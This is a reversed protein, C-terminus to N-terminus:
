QLLVLRLYFLGLSSCWYIYRFSTFLVYNAHLSERETKAQRCILSEIQKRNPVCGVAKKFGCEWFLYSCSNESSSKRFIRIQSSKYAALEIDLELRGCMPQFPVDSQLINNQYLLKCTSFLLCIVPSSEGCYVLWCVSEIIGKTSRSSYTLKRGTSKRPLFNM